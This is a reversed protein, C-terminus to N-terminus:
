DLATEFIPIFRAVISLIAQLRVFLATLRDQSLLPTADLLWVCLCFWLEALVQVDVLYM